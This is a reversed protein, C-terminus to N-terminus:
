RQRARMKALTTRLYSRYGPPSMWGIPCEVRRLERPALLLFQHTDSTRRRVRIRLKTGARARVRGVRGDPVKVCDGVQFKAAM